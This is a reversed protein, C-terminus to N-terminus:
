PNLSKMAEVSPLIEEDVNSTMSTVSSYSTEKEKRECSCSKMGAVDVFVVM